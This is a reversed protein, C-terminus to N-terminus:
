VDTQRDTQGCEFFSFLKLYWCWLRCVYLAHYVKAHASGSTLLDFTM